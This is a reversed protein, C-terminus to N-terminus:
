KTEEKMEDLVYQALDASGDNLGAEYLNRFEPLIVVQSRTRGAIKKLIDVLLVPIQMKGEEIKVRRRGLYYCAFGYALGLFCVISAQTM